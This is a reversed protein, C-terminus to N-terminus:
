WRGEGDRVVRANSNAREGADGREQAGGGGSRRRTASLLRGQQTPAEIPAGRGRQLLPGRYMATMAVCCASPRASSCLVMGTGDDSTIAKSKSSLPHTRRKGRATNQSHNQKREKRGRGREDDNTYCTNILHGKWLLVFGSSVLVRSEM